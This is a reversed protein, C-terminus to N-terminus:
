AAGLIKACGFHAVAEITGGAGASGMVLGLSLVLTFPATGPSRPLSLELSTAPAGEKVVFWESDTSHAGVPSYSAGPAYTFGDQHHLDPVAGLAATFRFFPYPGEPAFNVGPLLAGVQVRASLAEKDISNEVATRVVRDFPLRRTLPYEALLAPNNSLAISRRGLEGARDLGVLPHLHKVLAPAWNFDSLFELPQLAQRRLWKSATSCGAFEAGYRRTLEFTPDHLIRRKSAGGPRRALVGEMDKRTYLSLGAMNGSLPFPLHVKAMIGIAKVPHIATGYEIPVTILKSCVVPERCHGDPVVARIITM